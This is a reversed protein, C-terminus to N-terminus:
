NDIGQRRGFVKEGIAAVIGVPEPGGQVALIDLRTNRWSFVALLLDFVVSVEILLAVLDFVHESFELVPPADCGPIVSTRM